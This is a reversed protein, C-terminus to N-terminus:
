NYNLYLSSNKFAKVAAQLVKKAEEKEKIGLVHIKGPGKYNAFWIQLIDTIGQYKEDLEKISRVSFFPTDKLVAILKDDEEGHDLM